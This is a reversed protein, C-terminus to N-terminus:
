KNNCRRRLRITVVNTSVAIWAPSGNYSGAAGCVNGNCSATQFGGQSSFDSPFNNRSDVALSWTQGSNNSTFVLPYDTGNTSNYSMAAVCINNSCNIQGQSGNLGNFDSPLALSNYDLSYYLAGSNPITLIMPYMMNNSRYEGWALCTTSSCTTSTFQNFASSQYNAPFPGTATVQYQWSGGNLNKTLLPFRPPQPFTGSSTTYYGAAICSSRNCASSTFTGRVLNSPWTSSNDIEYAWTVAADSSSALVPKNAGVGVTICRNGQCSAANLTVSSGTPINTIITQPYTWSQGDMSRALYPVNNASTNRYNGVVLIPGPVTLIAASSTISGGANDTVIVQYQNGDDGPNLTGLVQM